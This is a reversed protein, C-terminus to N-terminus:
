CRVLGLSRTRARGRHASAACRTPWNVIAATTASGAQEPAVAPEYTLLRAEALSATGYRQISCASPSLELRSALIENIIIPIDVAEPKSERTGPTDQYTVGISGRLWPSYSGVPYCNLSARVADRVWPTNLFM